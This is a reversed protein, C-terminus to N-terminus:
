EYSKGRITITKYRWRKLKNDLFLKNVCGYPQYIKMIEKLPIKFLESLIVRNVGAHAIILINGYTTKIIEEFIPMVRKQLQYFSEGGTPAFTDIHNGRKKYEEPFRSKIHDFSKNEWEGLHIEKLGDIFIRDINRGELIIKSTEVCRKLPSIYAKEIDIVSFYRKLKKAQEIGDNSLSLDTTGIYHREGGFDIKGHRILYIKRDMFLDKGM